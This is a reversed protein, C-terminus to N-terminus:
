DGCVAPTPRDLHVTLDVVDALPDVLHSTLVVTRGELRWEGIMDRVQRVAQDDLGNLPEDLLVLAPDHATAVVLGLKKRQGLSLHGALQDRREGIGLRDARDALDGSRRGWLGAALAIHEGVSLYDYLPHPEQLYGTRQRAARDGAPHGDVLVDGEDPRHLGALVNLLTSKGSGNPGAIRVVHGPDIRLTLHRLVEADSRRVTLSKIDIM